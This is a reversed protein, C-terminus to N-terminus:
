LTIRKDERTIRALLRSISGPVWSTTNASLGESTKLPDIMARGMSRMLTLAKEPDVGYRNLYESYSMHNGSASIYIPDGIVPTIKGAPLRWEFGKPKECPVWDEDEALDLLKETEIENVAGCKHCILRKILNM